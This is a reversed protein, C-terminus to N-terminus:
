GPAKKLYRAFGVGRLWKQGIEAAKEVLAEVTGIAGSVGPCGDFREGFGSV